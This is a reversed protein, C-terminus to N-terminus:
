SLFERYVALLSAAVQEDAFRAAQQFGRSIMEAREAEDNVLRHLCDAMAQVDAPSVYVAADGGTEAFCSGESTLVPVGVCMAELIPIGFGEFHSPYLMLLAGKYIAPLDEACVSHVVILTVGLQEALSRCFVAYRSDAGVAVIPMSLHAAHIARIITELNKRPEIAGVTLLYHEPLHYRQRVSLVNQPSVPERFRSHCGQYVVRIKREDAGFYTIMDRKTQESICIIGDAVRCAYRVKMAFLHRYTWSYLHPYRMFIADHMTVLVKSASRKIGLPVEGSLGHYLAVNPLQSVVGWSRWLAPFLRWGAAPRFTGLPDVLLLEYEPAYTGLLRIVDRSYNGLGRHNHFARKADLAIQKVVLRSQKEITEVFTRLKEQIHM